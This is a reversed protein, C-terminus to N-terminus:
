ANDGCVTELANLLLRNERHSRVAVRICNNTLNRFNSCDRVLIGRQKLAKAVHAATLRNIKLLIFNAQTNFADIGKMRRLRGLLFEREKYVLRYTKDIYGREKLLLEAALQALANTNWPPLKRQLKNVIDKHAILYGLRLGPIAFFKTFTRLVIVNKEKVAHSMFTYRRQDPLFDMFAEDVVLMKYSINGTDKRSRLIINGTPNNPNCLFLLDVKVRSSISPKFGEDERLPLFRIRSGVAKAAREYESFTPMPVMVTKPRIVSLILYILEVSGNGLLINSKPINWYQAMINKLSRADPDPYHLSRGFEKQLMRKVTQPIGLPNINSSFDILGNNFSGRNSYLNGGHTFNLNVM